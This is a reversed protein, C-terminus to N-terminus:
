QTHSAAAAFQKVMLDILGDATVGFYDLKDKTKRRRNQTEMTMQCHAMDEGHKRFFDADVKMSAPGIRFSMITTALLREDETTVDAFVFAALRALEARVTRLTYSHTGAENDPREVLLITMEKNGSPPLAFCREVGPACVGEPMPVGKLGDSTFMGLILHAQFGRRHLWYSLEYLHGLPDDLELKGDLGDTVVKELSAGAPVTLTGQAILQDLASQMAAKRAQSDLRRFASKGDEQHDLGHRAPYAGVVALAADPYTGLDVENAESVRALLQPDPKLPRRRSFM